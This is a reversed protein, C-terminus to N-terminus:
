RLIPSSTPLGQNVVLAFTLLLDTGNEYLDSKSSTGRVMIAIEIDHNM